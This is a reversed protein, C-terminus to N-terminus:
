RRRTAVASRVSKICIMVHFNTPAGLFISFSTIGSSLRKLEDDRTRQVRLLSDCEIGAIFFTKLAREALIDADTKRERNAELPRNAAFQYTSLEAVPALLPVEHDLAHVVRFVMASLLPIAEPSVTNM